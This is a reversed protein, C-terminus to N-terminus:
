QTVTNATKSQHQPHNHAYIHTRTRTRRCITQMLYHIYPVVLSHLKSPRKQNQKATDRAISRTHLVCWRFMGTLNSGAGSHVDHQHQRHQRPQGPQRPQRTSSPATPPASLQTKAHQSPTNSREIENLNLHSNFHRLFLFCRGITPRTCQLRLDCCM